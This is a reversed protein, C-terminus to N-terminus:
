FKRGWKSIIRILVLEYARAQARAVRRAPDNKEAEKADNEAQDRLAEIEAYLEEIM